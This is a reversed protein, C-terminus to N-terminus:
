ADRYFDKVRRSPNWGQGLREFSTRAMEEPSAPFARATPAPSGRFALDLQYAVADIRDRYKGRPHRTFQLVVESHRRQWHFKRAACIPEFGDVRADKMRNDDRLEMWPVYENRERAMEEGTFRYTKQFGRTEIGVYLPKWLRNQRFIEELYDRPQVGKEAYMDLLWCHGESDWGCTAVVAECAKKDDSIAPDCTTVVTMYRLRSRIDELEFEMGEFYSKKFRATGEDIPENEYNASYL